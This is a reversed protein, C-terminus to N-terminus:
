EFELDGRVLYFTAALGSILLFILVLDFVLFCVHPPPGVPGCTWRGCLPYLDVQGVPSSSERIQVRSSLMWFHQGDAYLRLYPIPHFAEPKFFYLIFNNKSNLRTKITNPAPEVDAIGKVLM